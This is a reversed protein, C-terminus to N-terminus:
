YVARAPHAHKSALTFRADPAADRGILDAVYRAVAPGHKFGHGSGGGVIWVHDWRPHRDIIFDGSSTNEYQCVRGDVLPADALAPFRRAMWRRTDDVLRPDIVRDLRDPDVPPGHRDIGIKFGRADLDPIGYVGGAFDIWVPMSPASFRADGPPIGFYLVEQRTPRIRGGVSDPFVQPLWPGCAFIYADAAIASGDTRRVGPAARSEDLAAVRAAEYAVGAGIARAAAAQVGARARLVGAGTEFLAPGLGEVSIHPFRRALAAPDLLECPLALSTLTAHTARVYANDPEGLFLAGTTTLLPRGTDQELARWEHLSDTAWRSYIADPGYGARIVRSHDASSARGNAPGFADVLTVRHGAAQLRWATWSGFVGAGVVAIVV